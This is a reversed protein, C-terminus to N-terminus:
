YVDIFLCDSNNDIQAQTSALTIIPVSLTIYYRCAQKSPDNRTVIEVISPVGKKTHSYELVKM